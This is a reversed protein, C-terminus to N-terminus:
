KPRRQNRQGTNQLKWCISRVCINNSKNRVKKPIKKDSDYIISTNTQKKGNRTTCQPRIAMRNIEPQQTNLQTWTKPAGHAARGVGEWATEEAGPASGPLQTVLTDDQRRVRLWWGRATTKRGRSGLDLGRGGMAGLLTLSSPSLCCYGWPEPM